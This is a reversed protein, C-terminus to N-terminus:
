STKGNKKYCDGACVTTNACAVQPACSKGDSELSFGELCDCLFSGGINTCKHECTVNYKATILFIQM